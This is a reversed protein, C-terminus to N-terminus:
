RLYSCSHLLLQLRRSAEPVHQLDKQLSNLPKEIAILKEALCTPLLQVKFLSTNLVVHLRHFILLSLALELDLVLM